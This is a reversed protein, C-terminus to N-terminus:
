FSYNIAYLLLELAAQEVILAVAVVLILVALVVVLLLTVPTEPILLKDVARLNVVKLGV